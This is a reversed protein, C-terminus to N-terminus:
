NFTIACISLCMLLMLVAPLSKILPDKIKLHMAIAGLMLVAVLAAAPAAFSPLWIAAILVLASLVKLSGVTYCAWVPLGYAAFEEVINKATGGRYNTARRARILWVNLLGSAVVVQLVDSLDRYAM